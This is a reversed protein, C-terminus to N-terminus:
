FDVDIGRNRMDYIQKMVNKVEKAIFHERDPENADTFHLEFSLSHLYDELHMLSDRLFTNSNLLREHRAAIRGLAEGNNDVKSAFLLSAEQKEM